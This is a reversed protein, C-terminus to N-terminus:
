HHQHIYISSHIKDEVEEVMVVMAVVVKEEELEVMLV